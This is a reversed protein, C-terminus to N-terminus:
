TKSDKTTLHHFTALNKVAIDIDLQSMKYLDKSGVTTVSLVM